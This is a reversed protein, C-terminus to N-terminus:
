HALWVIYHIINQEWLTNCDRQDKLSSTSLLTFEQARHKLWSLDNKLWFTPRIKTLFTPESSQQNIRLRSYAGFTYIKMFNTLKPIQMTFFQYGPKMFAFLLITFCKGLCNNQSAEKQRLVSDRYHHFVLRFGHDKFHSVWQTSFKAFRNTVNKGIKSNQFKQICRMHKIEHLIDPM